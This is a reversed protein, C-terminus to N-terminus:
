RKRLEKSVVCFKADGCKAAEDTYQIGIEHRDGSKVIVEQGPLVKSPDLCSGDWGVKGKEKAAYWRDASRKGQYHGAIATVCMLLAVALLLRM